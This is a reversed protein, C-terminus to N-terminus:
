LKQRNLQNSIQQKNFENTKYDVEHKYSTFMPNEELYQEVEKAIIDLHKDQYLKDRYYRPMIGKEGNPLTIYATPNDQYWKIRDPTLWNSGLGNSMLSFEKQRDDEQHLRGDTYVTKNIYKTVYGIRGPTCPSMMTNGYQWDRTLLQPAEFYSKPLNFIISHYHPRLTSSGYEGCSYYKIKRQGMEYSFNREITRRLRKMFLKHHEKDLTPLGNLSWPLNKQDYTLTLFASSSSRRMEQDLRFIWGSQRRKLCSPCKGCPVVDTRYEKGIRHGGDRYLTVPALCQM